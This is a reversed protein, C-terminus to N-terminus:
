IHQVQRPLLAKLRTVENACKDLKEEQTRQTDRCKRLDEDTACRNVNQLFGTVTRSPIPGNPAAPYVLHQLKFFGDTVTQEEDRGRTCELLATLRMARSDAEANSSSTLQTYTRFQIDRHKYRLANYILAKVGRIHQLQHHALLDNAVAKGVKGTKYTDPNCLTTM